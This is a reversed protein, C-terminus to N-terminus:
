EEGLGASEQARARLYKDVQEEIFSQVTKGDTLLQQKFKIAKDKPISAQIVMTNIRSMLLMGM